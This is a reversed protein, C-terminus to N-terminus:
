LFVFHKTHRHPQHPIPRATKMRLADRPLTDNANMASLETDSYHLQAIEDPSKLPILRIRVKGHFNVKKPSFTPPLRPPHLSQFAQMWMAWHVKSTAIARFWQGDVTEVQIGLEKELWPGGYKLRHKCSGGYKGTAMTLIGRDLSWARHKWSSGVFLNATEVSVLASWGHHDAKEM